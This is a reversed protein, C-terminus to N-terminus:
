LSAMHETGIISVCLPIFRYKEHKYATNQRTQVILHWLVLSVVIGPPDESMPGPQLAAATLLLM